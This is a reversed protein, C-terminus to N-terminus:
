KETRADADISFDPIGAFQHAKVKKAKMMVLTPVGSVKPAQCNQLDIGDVQDLVFAPRFDDKTFGVDIDQLEIGKAHRIFFGYAPLIGFM